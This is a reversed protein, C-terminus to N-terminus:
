ISCIASSAISGSARKRSPACCHEMRATADFEEGHAVLSTASGIISALPTRLDHSISTLLAQRLRDTEEALRAKEIDAALHIREIALAAQDSLSQAPPERRAATFTGPRDSDIGIVGIAGRGTRMPIFLRKAGPLTDAGRGAAHNKEFSWQAAALDAEDLQDEPPYGGVLELRGEKPLLLVVNM